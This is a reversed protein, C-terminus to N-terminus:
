AFIGRMAFSMCVFLLCVYDVALSLQYFSAFAGDARVRFFCAPLRCPPLCAPLCAPLCPRLLMLCAPLSTAAVAPLFVWDSPSGQISLYSDSLRGDLLIHVMLLLDPPCANDFHLAWRDWAFPTDFHLSWQNESPLILPALYMSCESFLCGMLPHIPPNQHFRM